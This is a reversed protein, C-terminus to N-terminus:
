QIGFLCAGVSGIAFLGYESKALDKAKRENKKATEEDVEEEDTKTAAKSTEQEDAADVAEYM